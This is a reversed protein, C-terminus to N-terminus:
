ATLLHQRYGRPTTQFWRRCSRSFASQDSYDLLGSVQALPLKPQSLYRRALAQRVQDKVEEFTTGEESLRRQLTRPHMYMATAVERHSCAGTGLLAEVTQRVQATFTTQGEPLQRDLYSAALDHLDQNSDSVRLDLDKAAYALAPRDAQFTIPADFHSRYTAEDAVAAHSFWVHQPHCRGESLLSMIRWTLGVGHEATQAWSTGHEVLDTFVLRAQGRRVGTDITFGIAANHVRFYKSACEMAAGVTSSYRMAVALTDLIGIEQREALRLGFDPCALESASRELLDILAEFSIFATLQDLAVPDIGVASLLRIPNGGLDEVLGRYGRVSQARVMAMM